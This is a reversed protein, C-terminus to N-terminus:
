PQAPAHVSLRRRLYRTLLVCIWIALSPTMSLWMLTFTGLMDALDHSGMSNLIWKYSDSGWESRFFGRVPEMHLVCYGLVITLTLTFALQVIMLLIKQILTQALM